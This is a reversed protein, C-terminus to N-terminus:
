KLIRKKIISVIQPFDTKNDWSSFHGQHKFEHYETSLKKQVFRAEKIPIFRDDISAFQAIWQQNKKIAEWNWQRDYYRSAKEEPVGLDTYCAAVLISGLIKHKEAYRMAAVAGSSHGVLITNEDAGLKKIFPLWYKARALVPDPFQRFIVKFGLKELRRAVPPLWNEKPWHGGNGHILIIKVESNKM